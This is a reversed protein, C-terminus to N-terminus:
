KRKNEQRFLLIKDIMGAISAWLSSVATKGKEAIYKIDVM